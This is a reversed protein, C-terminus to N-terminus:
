KNSNFDTLRMLNFFFGKRSATRELHIYRLPRLLSLLIKVARCISTYLYASNFLYKKELNLKYTEVIFLAGYLGVTTNQLHM